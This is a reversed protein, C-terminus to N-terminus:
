TTVAFFYEVRDIVVVHHLQETLSELVYLVCLRMFPLNRHIAQIAEEGAHADGQKEDSSRCGGGGGQALTRMSVIHEDQLTSQLIGAVLDFRDVAVKALLGFTGNGGKM